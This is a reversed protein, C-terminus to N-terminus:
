DCFPFSHLAAEDNILFHKLLRKEGWLVLGKMTNNEQKIIEGSWLDDLEKRLMNHQTRQPALHPSDVADLLAEENKFHTDMYRALANFTDKVAVGGDDNETASLLLNILKILEHHERDVMLNGTDYEDKWDIKHVM